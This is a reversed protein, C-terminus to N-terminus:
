RSYTEGGDRFDYRRTIRNQLNLPKDSAVSHKQENQRAQDYAVMVIGAGVFHTYEM